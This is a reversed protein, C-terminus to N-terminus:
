DKAAFGEPLRSVLRYVACLEMVRGLEEHIDPVNLTYTKIYHLIASLMLSKSSGRIESEYGHYYNGSAAVWYFRRTAPVYYYCNWLYIAGPIPLRYGGREWDIDRFAKLAAAERAQAEEETRPPGPIDPLEPEGDAEPSGHRIPKWAPSSDEWLFSIHVFTGSEALIDSLMLAEAKEMADSSRIQVDQLRIDRQAYVAYFHGTATVYYFGLYASSNPFRLYELPEPPHNLPISTDEVLTRLADRELQLFHENQADLTRQANMIDQFFQELSAFNENWVEGSMDMKFLGGRRTCQFIRRQGQKDPNNKEKSEHSLAIVMVTAVNIGAALEKSLVRREARKIEQPVPYGHGDISWSSYYSSELASGDYSIIQERIGLPSTNSQSLMVTFLEEGQQMLEDGSPYIGAADAEEYQIAELEQRLQMPSSYREKPDFACAKLVIEGLRGEANAPAPFAEGGIRKALAAEHKSYTIAAPAPPLFPIRNNNLLRYMVIGLSYIDVGFGYAAGRYVEPAMYSYTGRKSLGSMTKEVTRAIGFDGLKFDGGDSVFINEPKIARHIIDCKQCLELARCLDIGLKIIDRRSFPHAYAYELLPNLLETRILIDWGVGDKHPIVEHDEYSVVNTMGKLKSMLAFERVFDEVVSYFYSHVSKEDMCEEFANRLEAASQPVTIVKLAARYTGFNERTIEYVKGYSGESILRKITWNELVISGVFYDM